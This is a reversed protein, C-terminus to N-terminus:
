CMSQCVEPDFTEPVRASNPSGGRLIAEIHEAYLTETPKRSITGKPTRRVGLHPETFIIHSRRVKGYSAGDKNAQLVLPWIEDLFAQGELGSRPKFILVPEPRGNGVLVVGAVSPHGLVAKEFPIPWLKHSTSLVIMDDVRSHFRWLGPKTPHPTFLDRTRGTEVHPFTHCLSRRSRFRESQHLVMEYLLNSPGIYSM